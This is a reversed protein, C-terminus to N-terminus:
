SIKLYTIWNKDRWNHNSPSVICKYMGQRTTKRQHLRAQAQSWQILHHVLPSGPRPPVGLSWPASGCCYWVRAWCEATHLLTTSNPADNSDSLSPPLLSLSLSLSLSPSLYTHTDRSLRIDPDFNLELYILIKFLDPFYNCSEPPGSSLCLDNHTPPLTIPLTKLEIGSFIVWFSCSKKTLVDTCRVMIQLPGAWDVFNIEVIITPRHHYWHDTIGLDGPETGPIQGFYFCFILFVIM